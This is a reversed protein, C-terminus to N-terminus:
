SEERLPDNYLVIRFAGDASPVLGLGGNSSACSEVFEGFVTQGGSNNNPAQQLFFFCGIDEVVFSSVGGSQGTCNLMPLTLMRRWAVGDTECDSGVGSLCDETQEKYEAYDYTDNYVVDGDSDLEAEDSPQETVLDPPYDSDSLGGKYVGLRTNIGQATPGTSAGPKTIVTDGISVSQTYAGALGKRVTSAGSGFDLLHYNGSGMLSVSSDGVKLAYVEGPTYGFVGTSEDGTCVGIPVINVTNLASSPGAVASATVLKEMGMTDILYEDLDMGTVLVRAYVDLDIDFSNDPFTLPDNSFQVEVTANSMDMESNGSANTIASLLNNAATTASTESGGFNAEDAAALAASDVANQLRTLNLRYHNVDIAFAAAVILLLLAATMLVLVIGKQKNKMSKSFRLDARYGHLM